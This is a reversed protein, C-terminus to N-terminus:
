DGRTTDDAAKLNSFKQYRTTLAYFVNGTLGCFILSISLNANLCSCVSQNLM